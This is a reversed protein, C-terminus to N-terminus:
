SLLAAKKLTSFYVFEGLIVNDRCKYAGYPPRYLVGGSCGDLGIWMANIENHLGFSEWAQARSKQPLHPLKFPTQLLHPLKFATYLISDHIFKVQGMLRLLIHPM